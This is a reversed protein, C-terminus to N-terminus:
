LQVTAINACIEVMKEDTEPGKQQNTCFAFRESTSTLLTHKFAIRIADLKVRLKRPGLESSIIFYSQIMLM